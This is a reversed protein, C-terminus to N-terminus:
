TKPAPKEPEVSILRTGAWADHWFQKQPHFRALIAWVAIWGLILVLIETPSLAQLYGVGIPPFFWLWSLVYRWLARAQSIPRGQPDVVRIRWTKMALTQGKAWFWGFYLALLLFVYAQLSYRNNLADRLPVLSPALHGVAFVMGFFFLGTGFVVGFLLTGEYLWCAMRRPLSPTTNEAAPDPTAPTVPASPMRDIFPAKNAGCQRM